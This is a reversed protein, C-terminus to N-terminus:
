LGRLDAAAGHVAYAIDDAAWALIELIRDLPTDAQNWGHRVALTCDALHAALLASGGDVLLCLAPWQSLQRAWLGQDAGM